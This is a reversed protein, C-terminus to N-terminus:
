YRVCARSIGRNAQVLVPINCRESSSQIVCLSLCSWDPMGSVFTTRRISTSPPPHEPNWYLNLSSVATLGSSLHMHPIIAYVPAAKTDAVM